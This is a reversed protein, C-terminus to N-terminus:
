KHCLWLRAEEVESFYRTTFDENVEVTQSMGEVYEAPLIYAVKKIGLKRYRQHHETKQWEYFEPTPTYNFQLTDILIKDSQYEFGYGIFNCCASVFKDHDMEPHDKNWIFSLLGHKEDVAVTYYRDQYVNM